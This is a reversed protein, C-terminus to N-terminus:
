RLWGVYRLLADIAKAIPAFDADDWQTPYPSSALTEALEAKLVADGSKQVIYQAYARAWMEDSRLLYGVYQSDAFMEQRKGNVIWNVKRTGKRLQTLTDFAKSQQVSEFFDRYVQPMQSPDRAYQLYTRQVQLKQGDVFHGVEHAMTTHPHESVTSIKIEIPKGNTYSRYHGHRSTMKGFKVPVVELGGDDHTADIAGAVRDVVTKSKGKSPGELAASVKTPSSQAPQAAPAVPATPPATPTPAPPVPPTPPVVPPLAVPPVIPVPLPLGITVPVGPAGTVTFARGLLLNTFEEVQLPGILATLEARATRIEDRLADLTAQTAAADQMVYKYRCLCHAHLPPRYEEPVADKPWPGAAAADDCIDRKRHSHSLVVALGEVFPNMAASMEGAQAHARAIETRALRMADYSADTGYPAKTRTLSRGPVLFQELERSIALSGRGQRVAEDIYADLRRRTNSATNWIRDSLRYGNPDVWTHPADYTALPNPHFVQEAVMAKAVAFPNSRAGQMAVALEDPLKAALLKAHQEVPLRMVDAIGRWLARMYPSLPLVTGDVQTTFPVLEGRWNSLFFATISDGVVKQLEFTKARPVNGDADARRLVEATITAALNNFLLTMREENARMVALFRAKNTQAM